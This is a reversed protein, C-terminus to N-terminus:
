QAIRCMVRQRRPLECANEFGLVRICEMEDAYPRSHEAAERELQDRASMDDHVQGVEIREFGCGARDLSYRGEGALSM